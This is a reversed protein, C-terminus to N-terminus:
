RQEALKRRGADTMVYAGDRIEVLGAEVLERVSSRIQYLPLGSAAAVEDLTAPKEMATMVKKAAVTLSGDARICPM